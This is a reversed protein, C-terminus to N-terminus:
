LAIVISKMFFFFAQMIRRKLATDIPIPRSVTMLLARTGTKEGSEFIFSKDIFAVHCEVVLLSFATPSRM